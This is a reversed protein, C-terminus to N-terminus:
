TEAFVESLNKSELLGSRTPSDIKLNAQEVSLCLETGENQTKFLFSDKDYDLYVTLKRIKGSIKVYEKSFLKLNKERTDIETLNISQKTM